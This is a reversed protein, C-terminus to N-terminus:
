ASVLVLGQQSEQGSVQSSVNVSEQGLVQVLVQASVNV